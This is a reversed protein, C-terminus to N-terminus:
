QSMPERSPVWSNSDSPSISGTAPTGAIRSSEKTHQNDDLVKSAAVGLEMLKIADQDDGAHNTLQMAEVTRRVLETTDMKHDIRGESGSTTSTAITTELASLAEKLSPRRHTPPHSHMPTTSTNTEALNTNSSSLASRTAEILQSLGELPADDDSDDDNADQVQKGDPPGVKQLLPQSAQSSNETSIGLSLSIPLLPPLPLESIQPELQSPPLSSTPQQQQQQEQEQQDDDIFDTVQVDREVVATAGGHMAVPVFKSSPSLAESSGSLKIAFESGIQVPESIHQRASTTAVVVNSRPSKLTITEVETPDVVDELLATTMNTHDWPVEERTQLGMENPERKSLPSKPNKRASPVEESRGGVSASSPSKVLGSGAVPSTTSSNRDDLSEKRLSPMFSNGYTSSQSRVLVRPPQMSPSLTESAPPQQFSSVPSASQVQQTFSTCPTADVTGLIPSKPLNSKFPSSLKLPTSFLPSTASRNRQYRSMNLIKETKAFLSVSQESLPGSFKPAKLELTQRHETSQLKETIHQSADTHSLDSNSNHISSRGSGSNNDDKENDMVVKLNMERPVIVGALTLGRKKGTRKDSGSKEKEKDKRLSSSRSRVSTPLSLVSLERDVRKWVSKVEREMNSTTLEKHLDNVLPKLPHEYPQIENADHSDSHFNSHDLNTPDNLQDCSSLHHDEYITL